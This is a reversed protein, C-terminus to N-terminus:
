NVVGLLVRVNQACNEATIRENVCFHVNDNAMDYAIWDRRIQNVKLTMRASVRVTVVESSMKHAPSARASLADPAFVLTVAFALASLVRSWFARM